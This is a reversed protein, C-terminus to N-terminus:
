DALKLVVTISENAILDTESMAQAVDREILVTRREDGYEEAAALLEDRILNRLKVRNFAQGKGPKVFENDLISCPEGDLMVKLGSRFENTSYNGM